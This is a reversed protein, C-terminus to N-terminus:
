PAGQIANDAFKPESELMWPQRQVVQEKKSSM